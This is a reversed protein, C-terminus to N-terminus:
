ARVLEIVFQSAGPWDRAAASVLVVTSLTQHQTSLHDIPFTTDTRVSNDRKHGTSDELLHCKRYFLSPTKLLYDSPDIGNGPRM